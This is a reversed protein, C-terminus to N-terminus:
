KNIKFVMFEKRFFYIFAKMFTGYIWMQEYDLDIYAANM